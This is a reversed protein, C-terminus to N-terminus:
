LEGPIGGTAPADDHGPRLGLRSLAHVEAIAEPTWRVSKGREYSSPVGAPRGEVGGDRMAILDEDPPPFPFDEDHHILDDAM